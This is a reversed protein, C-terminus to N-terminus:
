RPRRERTHAPTAVLEARRVEPAAVLEARRVEPSLEPKPMAPGQLSDPTATALPTTLEPAALFSEDSIPKPRNWNVFAFCFVVSVCAVAFVVPGIKKLNEGPSSDQNTFPLPPPKQSPLPPPVHPSSNGELWKATKSTYPVGRGSIGATTHLGRRGVSTKLVSKGISFSPFRKNLNGWLGPALKFRKRIKFVWKSRRSTAQPNM